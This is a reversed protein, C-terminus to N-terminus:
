EKYSPLQPSNCPSLPTGWLPLLLFLFHLPTTYRCKLGRRSRAPLVPCISHMRCSRLPDSFYLPSHQLTLKVLKLLGAKVSPYKRAQEVKQAWTVQLQRFETLSMVVDQGFHTPQSDRPFGGHVDRRTLSTSPTTNKRKEPAQTKSGRLSDLSGAARATINGAFFVHRVLREEVHMAIYLASVTGNQFLTAISQGEKGDKKAAAGKGAARQKISVFNLKPGM